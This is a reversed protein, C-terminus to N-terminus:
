SCPQIIHFSSSLVIMSLMVGSRGPNFVIIDLKITTRPARIWACHEPFAGSAIFRPLCINKHQWIAELSCATASVLADYISRHGNGFIASSYVCSSNCTQPKSHFSPPYILYITYRTSQPFAVQLGTSSYTAEM